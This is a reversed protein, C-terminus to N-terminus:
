MVDNSVVQFVCYLVVQEEASLYLAVWQELKKIPWWLSMHSNMARCGGGWLESVTKFSVTPPWERKKFVSKETSNNSYSYFHSIFSLSHSLAVASCAASAVVTEWRETFKSCISVSIYAHAYSKHHNGYHDGQPVLCNKSYCSHALAAGWGQRKSWTSITTRPFPIM